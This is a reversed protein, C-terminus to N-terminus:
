GQFVFGSMFAEWGIWKTLYCCRPTWNGPNRCKSRLVNNCWVGSVSPRHPVSPCASGSLAASLKDLKMGTQHQQVDVVNHCQTPQTPNRNKTRWGAWRKRRGKRQQLAAMDPSSPVWVHSAHWAAITWRRRRLRVAVEAAARSSGRRLLSQRVCTSRSVHSAIACYLLARM